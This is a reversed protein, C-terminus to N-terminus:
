DTLVPGMCDPCADNTTPKHGRILVQGCKAHRDRWPLLGVLLQGFSVLHRYDAPGPVPKVAAPKQRILRRVTSLRGRAHFLHRPNFVEPPNNVAEVLDAWFRRAAEDLEPTTCEPLLRELEELLVVADSYVDNQPFADLLSDCAANFAEATTPFEGCLVLASAEAETDVTESPQTTTDLATNQM